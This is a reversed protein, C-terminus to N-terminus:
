YNRAFLRIKLTFNGLSVLTSMLQGLGLVFEFCPMSGYIEHFASISLVTFNKFILFDIYFEEGYDEEFQFKFLKV